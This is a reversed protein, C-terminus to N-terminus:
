RELHKDFFAAIEGFAEATEPAMDNFLDHAHAQGEYVHLDANVGADRRLRARGRHDSERIERRPTRLDAGARADGERRGRRRGIEMAPDDAPQLKSLPNPSAGIHRQIESSVTTPVPARRSTDFEMQSGTIRRTVDGFNPENPSGIPKKLRILAPAISPRPRRRNNLARLPM